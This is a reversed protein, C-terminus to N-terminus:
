GPVTIPIMGSRQDREGRFRSRGRGSEGDSCRFRRVRTVHRSNRYRGCGDGRSSDDPVAWKPLLEYWWAVRFDDVLVTIERFALTASEASEQTSGSVADDVRGLIDAPIRSIRLTLEELAVRDLSILKQFTRDIEGRHHSLWDTFLRRSLGHLLDEFARGGTEGHERSFWNTFESVALTDAEPNWLGIQEECRRPFELRLRNEMSRLVAASDNRIKQLGDKLRGELIAAEEPSRARQSIRIAIEQQRAVNATREGARFLFERAKEHRLFDTLAAELRPLSSAALAELSGRQKAQLGDRASVSFTEFNSNAFQTRLMEGISDLVADRDPPSVLDHKNVVIFVKRVHARIEDLFNLEPEAMPSEFSTVLIAADAEPLFRRTTRTNAAIASAIGPTDMFHVGLRLLENPLQIQALTVRKENGPNGRQTVYEPLQDLGIEQPFSWDERQLLVKESEGYAVTTIVSTLPLIGTPLKDSGLLANGLSSKGRSFQGLIALNFRNEALRALVRHCDQISSEDKRREAIHLLARVIASLRLKLQGYQQLIGPPHNQMTVNM